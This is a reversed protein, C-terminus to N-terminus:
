RKGQRGYLNLCILYILKALMSTNATIEAIASHKRASYLTLYSVLYGLQVKKAVQTCHLLSYVCCRCM